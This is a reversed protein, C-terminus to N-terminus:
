GTGLTRIWEAGGVLELVSERVICFNGGHRLETSHRPRVATAEPLLEARRLRPRSGAGPSASHCSIGSRGLGRRYSGDQTPMSGGVGFKACCPRAGCARLVARVASPEDKSILTLWASNLRAAAFRRYVKMFPLHPHLPLPFTPPRPDANRSSSQPASNL